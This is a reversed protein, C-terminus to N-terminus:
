SLIFLYLLKGGGFVVLFTSGEHFSIARQASLGLHAQFILPM